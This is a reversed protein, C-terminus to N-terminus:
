NSVPLRKQVSRLTTYVIMDIAPSHLLQLSPTPPPPKSERGAKRKEANMKNKVWFLPAPTHELGRAGGGSRGILM